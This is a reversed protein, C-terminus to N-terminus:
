RKGTKVNIKTKNLSKSKVKNIGEIQEALYNVEGTLIEKEHELGFISRELYKSKSEIFLKQVGFTFFALIVFLSIIVGLTNTQNRFHYTMIVLFTQEITYVILFLGNMLNTHEYSFRKSGNAIHGLWKCFRDFYNKKKNM